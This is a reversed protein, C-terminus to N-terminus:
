NSTIYKRKGIRDFKAIRNIYWKENNGRVNKQFSFVLSSLLGDYLNICM